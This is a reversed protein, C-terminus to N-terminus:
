KEKVVHTRCKPARSGYETEDDGVYCVTHTNDPECFVNRMLGCVSCDATFTGTLDNPVDVWEHRRTKM